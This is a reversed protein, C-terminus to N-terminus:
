LLRESLKQFIGRFVGRGATVDLNAAAAGLLGDNQRHRVLAAAEGGILFSLHAPPREAAAADARAPRTQTQPDGASENGGVPAAQVGFAPSGPKPRRHVHPTGS